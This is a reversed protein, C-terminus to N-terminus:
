LPLRLECQVRCACVQQWSLLVEAVRVTRMARAAAPAKRLAVACTECFICSVAQYVDLGSLPEEPAERSAAAKSQVM